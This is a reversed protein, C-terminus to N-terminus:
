AKTIHLRTKCRPFNTCGWFSAGAKSSNRKVLKIGCSACTPRWFEGEYAVDLLQQQEEASRKDILGLLAAGDLPSIGNHKAFALADTTFTSSTAFIGTTLANSAMVGFFERLEKVGVAKNQWHKCQVVAMVKGSSNQLWIDVGGDAGHSQARTEFGNKSFLAECLAEFRRWEIHGFVDLGWKTSRSQRTLESSSKQPYIDPLNGSAPPTAKGFSDQTDTPEHNAVDSTQRFAPKAAQANTYLHLGILTLGIGLSLWGPTELALFVSKLLSNTGVFVPALLFVTGLGSLQIGKDLLARQGRKRKKVTKVIM